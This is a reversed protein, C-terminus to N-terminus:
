KSIKEGEIKHFEFGNVADNFNIEIAEPTEFGSIRSVIKKVGNVYLKFVNKEKKIAFHTKQGVFGEKIKKKSKNIYYTMENKAYGEFSFINNSLKIVLDGGYSLKATLKIVFDEPFELGIVAIKNTQNRPNSTLVNEGNMNEVLISDAVIWEEPVLGEEVGSFDEYIFKSKLDQPKKSSANDSDGVELVQDIIRGIHPQICSRINNLEEIRDKDAVDVVGNLEKKSFKVSGKMGKSFINISGDADAEVTYGEGALCLSRLLKTAREASENANSSSSMFTMLLIIFYSMKKFNIAM